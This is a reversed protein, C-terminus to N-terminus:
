ETGTERGAQSPVNAPSLGGNFTDAAARYRGLRGVEAIFLATAGGTGLCAHVVNPRGLALSLQEVTLEACVTVPNGTARSVANLRRELKRHGDESGDTGHLLVRVAGSGIEAEVKAFGTVVLGAKNALSLADMARKVLLREVQDALDPAVRTGTELARNLAKGRVAAAVTARSCAVWAGRGPLKGQIDPVITGDPAAVFRLLEDAPRVTRTVVCTRAPGEGVPLRKSRGTRARGM